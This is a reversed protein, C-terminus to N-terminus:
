IDIYINHLLIYISTNHIHKGKKNRLLFCFYRSSNSSDLTTAFDLKAELDLVKLRKNALIPINTSINKKNLFEKPNSRLIDIVIHLDNIEELCIEEYAQYDNIAIQWNSIKDDLNSNIQEPFLVLNNLFNVDYDALANKSGCFKICFYRYM